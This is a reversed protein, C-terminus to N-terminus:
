FNDYAKETVQKRFANVVSHVIKHHEAAAQQTSSTPHPALALAWYQHPMFHLRLWSLCQAAQESYLSSVSLATTDINPLHIIDPIIPTSGPSAYVIDALTSIDGKEVILIGCINLLRGVHWALQAASQSFHVSHNAIALNVMAIDKSCYMRHEVNHQSSTSKILRAPISRRIERLLSAQLVAILIRADSAPYMGKSQLM